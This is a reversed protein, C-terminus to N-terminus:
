ATPMKRKRWQHLGVGLAIFFLVNILGNMPSILWDWGPQIQIFSETFLTLLFVDEIAHMLLAPWVSNTRLRIEGFVMAWAIYVLMTLPIYAPVDLTTFKGLYARDLFFLYYPIHWAGWILGVVGHAAFDNLGLSSVKPALYGRWAGEEFINKIFQAPFGVLVVQLLLALAGASFNPFTMLGSGKGIILILLTVIPFTLITVLYWLLNGKLNLKIGLDKWGSGAFARLLLSFPFPIILWILMGLTETGTNGMLIDVGHGIWGSALVVVSFIVLNRLTIGRSTTQTDKKREIRGYAALESM